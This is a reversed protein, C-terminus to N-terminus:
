AIHNQVYWQEQDGAVSAVAHDLLESRIIFRYLICKIKFTYDIIMLNMSDVAVAKASM